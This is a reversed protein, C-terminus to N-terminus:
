SQLAVFMSAQNDGVGTIDCSQRAVALQINDCMVGNEIAYETAGSATRPTNITVCSIMVKVCSNLVPVSAQGATHYELDVPHLWLTSFARHREILTFYAMNGVKFEAPSRDM